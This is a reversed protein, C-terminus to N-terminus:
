EAALVVAPARASLSANYLDFAGMGQLTATAPRTATLHYTVTFDTGQPVTAFYLYAQGEGQREYRAFKGAAALGKMEGDDFAFGVPARADIMVMKLMDAQGSYRFSAKVEIRDGVAVKTASYNVAFALAPPAEGGSSPVNQRASVQYFLTGDGATLIEVKADRAPLDPRDEAGLLFPKLDVRYTVDRNEPTFTVKGARAGDVLVEADLSGKMDFADGILNFATFGVATSFTSSFIGYRTRSKLLYDLASSVLTSYGGHRFLGMVAFSTTEVTNDTRHYKPFGSDPQYEWRTGYKDSVAMGALRQAVTERVPADGGSLELADLALALVFASPEGGIHGALYDRAKTIATGDLPYGSYALARLVFATAATTKGVLDSNISWHDAANTDGYTFSGDSKQTSVLYGQLDPIVSEDFAFGAKKLEYFVQVAWATLWPDAKADGFWSIAKRGEKTKVFYQLEHQIGKVITERHRTVNQPSTSGKMYNEYALIDVALRTTSQEGCGSVLQIAGEAGDIIASRIGAQLTVLGSESFPVRGSLLSIIAATSNTGALKGNYLSAVEKGDPVVRLTRTVIDTRSPGDGKVTVTSDGARSARVTFLLGAVSNAGVTLTQPPTLVAIGSGSVSVTVPAPSKEYNFVAVRMAFTDNRVAEVPLDPEVFFPQFVTIRGSGGAVLGNATSALGDLQWSTISDPARLTLRAEGKEDTIVSPNWYWTEPFWKRVSITRQAASGAGAGGGASASYRTATDDRAGATSALAMPPATGSEWGGGLAQTAAGKEMAPGGDRSYSSSPGSGGSTVPTSYSAAGGLPLSPLTGVQASYMVAAGGATALLLLAAVPALFKRWRVAVAVAAFYGVVGLMSVALYFRPLDSGVPVVVKATGKSAYEASGTAGVSQFFRVDSSAKMPVPASLVCGYWFVQYNYLFMAPSNTALVDDFAGGGGAMSLLAEDVFALAVASRAPKGDLAVKLLLSVEEGPRYTTKEPSITLNLGDTAGAAVQAGDSLFTVREYEVYRGAPEIPLGGPVAVGGSSGSSVWESVKMRGLKMVSVQFFPSMSSNVPFSLTASKGEMARFGRSLVSGDDATVTYFLYKGVGPEEREAYVDFRATEGSAYFRKEPSVKLGAGYLYFQQAGKAGAKAVTLNLMEEGTYIYTVSATGRADTVAEVKRGAGSLEGKLTVGEAPSGDPYRVLLDLRSPAGKVQTEMISTIQFPASAVSVTTEKSETHGSTDTATINFVLDMPTYPYRPLGDYCYYPYSTYSYLAGDGGRKMYAIEACGYGYYSNMTENVFSRLAPISFPLAGDVLGGTQRLVVSDIKPGYKGTSTVRATVTANGPVDKGFFYKVSVNGSIADDLSYWRSTDKLSISFRPLVYRQVSVTKSASTHNNKVSLTYSGLELYDALPFDASAVGFESAALGSRYILLGSPNRVEFTVPTADASGNYFALTRLRITQGPQYLPKDVSLFLRADAKQPYEMTGYDEWAVDPMGVSYYYRENIWVDKVIKEGGVEIVVRPSSPESRVPAGFGGAKEGEIIGDGGGSTAPSPKLYLDAVLIGKADTKGEYLTETGRYSYLTVTVPANPYPEQSRDASLIVITNNEGANLYPPLFVFSATRFDREQWSGSKVAM